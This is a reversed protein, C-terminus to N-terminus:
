LASMRPVSPPPSPFPTLPLSSAVAGGVACRVQNGPETAAAASLIGGLLSGDDAEIQVAAEGTHKNVVVDEGTAANVKTEWESEPEQVPLPQSSPVNISDTEHYDSSAPPDSKDSM